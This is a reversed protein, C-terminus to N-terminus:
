QTIYASAFYFACVYHVITLITYACVCKQAASREGEESDESGWQSGRWRRKALHHKPMVVGGGKGRLRM